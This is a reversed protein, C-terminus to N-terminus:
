NFLPFDVTKLKQWESMMIILGNDANIVTSKFGNGNPFNMKQKEKKKVKIAILEATVIYQESVILISTIQPLDSEAFDNM